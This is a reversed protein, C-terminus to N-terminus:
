FSWVVSTYGTHARYNQLGVFTENYHYHQYGINWNMRPILKITLRALPSQYTLPFTQFAVFAPLESGPDSGDPPEAASDRGDGTDQVRSYGTYLEIRDSLVLRLGINLTHVNSLYISREGEVLQFGAFYAIGSVTGLHMKNYGADIAFRATPTWSFDFAYNRARSSHSSLSTPNTNYNVRAAASLLLRPTRYQIRGGLLHYNKESVPYFPDDVRGIEGELNVTLPKLPRLRVGGVGSHVTNDREALRVEEFDDFATLETSRIRRTSYHYGGYVGLWPLAQYNADTTNVTTRVGLSQFAVEEFDFSRNNFEQFVSDGEMRVHYYATHNALTLRETPFLSITSNASTVPRRGAGFVLVQRDLTTGFRTTASSTEDVIFNRHSGTYNGRASVSLWRGAEAWLSGRWSPSNGHYPETRRFTNLSVGNDPDNGDTPSDISAGTDDKFNEWVRIIRLRLRPLAVEGGARYENRERRIDQFVPFEDGFSGFFNTTSLAPGKHLNRGYGFVGRLRSEPFLTLDHDQWRRETDIAHQGNSITFAPNFYANWHWFFNYEYLNNKRARLRAFQYPDNGLGQTTLVLEDFYKGKGDQSYIGLHNSLLRVGNGYNVDSRYKGINGGVTHFRYGVEWSNVVNYNGITSGKPDASVEPSPAVTPQALCLTAPFTILAYLLTLRCSM